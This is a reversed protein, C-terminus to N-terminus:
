VNDDTAVSLPYYYYTFFHDYLLFNYYQGNNITCTHKCLLVQSIIFIHTSNFYTYFLYKITIVQYLKSHNVFCSWEMNNAFHKILKILNQRYHKLMRLRTAFTVGNQILKGTSNIAMATAPLKIIYYLLPYWTKFSIYMTATLSVFQDIMLLSVSVENGGVSWKKQFEGIKNSDSVEFEGTRFVTFISTKGVGVDGILIVKDLPSSLLGGDGNDM